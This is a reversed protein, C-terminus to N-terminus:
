LDVDQGLGQLVRRVYDRRWGTLLRRRERRAREEESEEENVDNAGRAGDEEWERGYVIRVQGERIRLAELRRSWLEPFMSLVFVVVAHQFRQLTTREQLLHPPVAAPGLVTPAPEPGILPAGNEGLQQGNRSASSDLGLQQREWELNHQALFGLAQSAFTNPNLAPGGLPADPQQAFPDRAAAVPDPVADPVAAAPEANGNAGARRRLGDAAGADQRPVGAPAAGDAEAPGAPAGAANDGAGAAPRPNANANRGGDGGAAAARAAQIRAMEVKVVGWIEYCMWCMVALFWPVSRDPTWRFIYMIFAARAVIMCIPLLLRSPNAFVTLTVVAIHNLIRLYTPLAHPPIRDRHNHLFRFEAARIHNGHNRGGGLDNPLGGSINSRRSTFAAFTSSVSPPLSPLHPLLPYTHTLIELALKQLPNPQASPDMVSLYPLNDVLKWEYVVGGKMMEPDKQLKAYLDTEVATKIPWIVNQIAFVGRAM